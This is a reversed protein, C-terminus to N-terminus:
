LSQTMTKSWFRFFISAYYYTSFQLLFVISYLCNTVKLKTISLAFYIKVSGQQKQQLMDGWIHGYRKNKITSEINFKYM